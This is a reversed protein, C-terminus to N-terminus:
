DMLQQMKRWTEIGLRVTNAFTIGGCILFSWRLWESSVQSAGVFLLATIISRVLGAVVISFLLIFKETTM